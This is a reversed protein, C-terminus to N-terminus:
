QHTTGVLTLVPSTQEEPKEQSKVYSTLSGARFDDMFQLLNQQTVDDVSGNDYKYKHIRDEGPNLLRITPVSRVSVYYALNSGVTTQVDAVIFLIDDGEMIEAVERFVRSLSQDEQSEQASDVFLIIATSKREWIHDVYEDSFNILAPIASKDMFTMIEAM